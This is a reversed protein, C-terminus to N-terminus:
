PRWPSAPSTPPPSRATRSRAGRRATPSCATAARTGCCATGCSRAPANALVVASSGLHEIQCDEVVSGGPAIDVVGAGAPNTVRCGRMALSGSMRALVAAWGSGAVTCREMVAQGRPADVVPVDEDGGRLLLGTLMVEEAMVTVASGLRPCIEVSDREGEAVITVRTRITLNEAYRGPAVSIVAGTRAQAM